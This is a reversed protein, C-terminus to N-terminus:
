QKVYLDGDYLNFLYLGDRGAPIALINGYVSALGPSGFPFNRKWLLKPNKLSTIDLVYVLGRMRNTIVMIKDYVIVPKGNLYNDNVRYITSSNSVEGTFSKLDRIYIGGNYISVITDGKFTGASSLQVVPTVTEPYVKNGTTVNFLFIGNIHWNVLILSDNKLFHNFPLRYFLGSAKSKSIRTINDPNTINVMDLTNTGVQLAAKKLTSVALGFVGGENPKYRGKIVPHRSTNINWISFGNLGEALYLSNGDIQLDYVSGQTKLLQKGSQNSFDFEHVGKEGSAIYLKKGDSSFAVANVVGEPRYISTSNSTSINTGSLKIPEESVIPSATNLDVVYLGTSYAAIYAVGDGLAFGCLPESRSIGPEFNSDPLNLKPPFPLAFRRKIIPQESNVIDVEFFGAETNCVYAFRGSVQVDWWDIYLQYFSPLQIRAIKKPSNINEINIINLGHGEGKFTKNGVVRHHGTAAFFYDGMVFVGDGYGDVSITGSEHIVPKYPNSIDCIKLERSGWDGIFAYDGSLYVSQAEGTRIFSMFLPVEPNSVNVFEVGYQRNTVAMLDGCVAIGTALELSEYWSIIKPKQVHSVDVIFVGNERSSIYAIEDQLEIQRVNGLGQLKSVFLPNTKDSIDYIYLSSQGIVYLNDGEKKVDRCGGIDIHNLTKIPIGFNGQGFLPSTIALHLVLIILASFFYNEKFVYSSALSKTHILKGKLYTKFLIIVWNISKVIENGALSIIWSFPYPKVEPFKLVYKKQSRESM